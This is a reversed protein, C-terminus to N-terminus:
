RLVPRRAIPQQLLLNLQATRHLRNGSGPALERGASRHGLVVDELPRCRVTGRGVHPQRLQERGALARQHDVAEHKRAVGTILAGSGVGSLGREQRERLGRGM